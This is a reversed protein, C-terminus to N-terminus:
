VNPDHREDPERGELEKERKELQERQLEDIGEQEAPTPIKAELDPSLPPPAEEPPPPEAPPRGMGFWRKVTDLLTM